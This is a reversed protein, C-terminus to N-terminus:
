VGPQLLGEHHYPISVRGRERGREREGESRGVRGGEM